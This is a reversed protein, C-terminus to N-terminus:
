KISYSYIVTSLDNFERSEQLLTNWNGKTFLYVFGICIFQSTTRTLLMCPICRSCKIGIVQIVVCLIRRRDNSPWAFRAKALLAFLSFHNQYTITSHTILLKKRSVSGNSISFYYATTNLISHKKAVSSPRWLKCHDTNLETLSDREEHVYILRTM